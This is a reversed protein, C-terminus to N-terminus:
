KDSTIDAGYTGEWIKEVIEPNDLQWKAFAKNAIAVRMRTEQDYAITALRFPVGTEQQNYDPLDALINEFEKSM